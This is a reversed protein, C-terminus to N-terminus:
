KYIYQFASDYALPQSPFNVGVVTGGYFLWKGIYSVIHYAINTCINGHILRLASLLVLDISISVLKVFSRSIDSGISILSLESYESHLCNFVFHKHTM